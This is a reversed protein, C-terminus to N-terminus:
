SLSLRRVLTALSSERHYFYGAVCFLMGRLKDRVHLLGIQLYFVVVPPEKPFAWRDAYVVQLVGQSVGVHATLPVVHTQAVDNIGFM